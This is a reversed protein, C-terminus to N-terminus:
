SRRTTISVLKLNIKNKNLINYLKGSPIYIMQDKNLKYVENNVIVWAIGQLIGAVEGGNNSKKFGLSEGARFLIYDARLNRAPFFEMLQDLKTFDKISVKEKKNKAM